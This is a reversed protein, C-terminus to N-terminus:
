FFGNNELSVTAGEVDASICLHHFPHTRPRPPNLLLTRKHHPLPSPHTPPFHPPIIGLECTGVGRGGGWLDASCWLPCSSPLESLLLSVCRSHNLHPQYFNVPSDLQLHLAREKSEREGDDWNKRSIWTHTHLSKWFLMECLPLNFILMNVILIWAFVLNLM